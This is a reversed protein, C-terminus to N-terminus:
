SAKPTDHRTANTVIKMTRGDDQLHVSIEGPGEYYAVYARGEADIVEIRDVDIALPQPEYEIKHKRKWIM